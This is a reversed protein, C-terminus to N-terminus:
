MCVRNKQDMGLPALPNNRAKCKFTVRLLSQPGSPIGPISGLDAAHLASVKGATNDGWSM